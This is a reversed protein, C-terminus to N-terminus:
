SGCPLEARIRLRDRDMRQVRLRGDVAGIRDELDIMWRGEDMRGGDLGVDLHLQGAERRVVVTVTTAGSRRVSEALVFYAAGEAKEDQPGDDVSLLRVPVTASEAFADVAAALGEDALVAPFIGHAVARLEEVAAVLEDEVSKARSLNPTAASLPRQRALRVELLLNVLGQQAGDHLNRELRRREADSAEVIRQRSARLRELQASLQAQLRENDLVLRAARMVEAVIAPDELLGRRHSLVAVVRDGRVLPTTAGELTLVRGAVDVLSGDELPYGLRLSTDRLTDALADRLGGPPPSGVLEVVLRAVKSRTRRVRAGAYAVGAALLVLCVGEALWLQRESSYSVLSGLRLSEAYHWGTLVLFGAAAVSVPAKTRRLVPGAVALQRFVLVALVLSWAVALQAGFRTAVDVVAPSNGVLLLNTPCQSCGQASGDFWLAPLLGLVLVTSVYALALAARTAASRGRGIPFALAAHAVVVPCIPSLVLGTTFVLPWGSGPNAWEVMFWAAGACVLLMGSSSTPRRAWIVLGAVAIAWGPVLMEAAGVASGDSASQTPSRFAVATAALAIVAVVLWAVQRARTTM